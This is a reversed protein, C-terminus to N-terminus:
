HINRNSSATLQEDVKFVSYSEKESVRPRTRAFFSVQYYARQEVKVEQFLQYGKSNTLEAYYEGTPPVVGLINQHHREM